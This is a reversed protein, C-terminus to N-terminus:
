KLPISIPGLIKTSNYKNKFNNTLEPVDAQVGKNVTVKEYCDIMSGDKLVYLKRGTFFDPQYCKVINNKWM